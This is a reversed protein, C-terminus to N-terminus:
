DPKSVGLLEQLQFKIQQKLPPIMTEIKTMANQMDELAPKALPERTESSEALEHDYDTIDIWARLYVGNMENIPRCVSDDFFVENEHFFDFFDNAAIGAQVRKENRSPDGSFQGPFAYFRMLREMKTLKQFLTRIVDARDNHLKSYRITREQAIMDLQYRHEDLRKELYQEFFRRGLYVLLSTISVSGITFIGLSTLIENWNM